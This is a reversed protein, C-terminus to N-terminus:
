PITKGKECDPVVTQNTMQELDFTKQTRIPEGEPLLSSMVSVDDSPKGLSARPCELITSECLRWRLGGGEVPESKRVSKVVRVIKVNHTACRGSGIVCEDGQSLEQFKLIKDSISSIKVNMNAAPTTKFTLKEINTGGDHTNKVNMDISPQRIEEYPNDEFNSSGNFCRAEFVLFFENTVFPRVSPILSLTM